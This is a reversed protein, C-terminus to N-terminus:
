FSLCYFYSEGFNDFIPHQTKIYESLLDWDTKDTSHHLPTHSKIAPDFNLEIKEPNETDFITNEPKKLIKM